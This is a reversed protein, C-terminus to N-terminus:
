YKIANKEKKKLAELHTAIRMNVFINDSKYKNKSM